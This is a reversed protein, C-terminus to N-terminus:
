EEDARQKETVAKSREENADAEAKVARNREAAAHQENTRAMAEASEARQRERAEAEARATERDRAAEAVQRSNEARILGWTTGIIGGVLTLFVLAAALVPRKNRRLLKKLRYGTSPPCAEVPEDCLYRDLDR